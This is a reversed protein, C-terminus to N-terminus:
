PIFCLSILLECGNENGFTVFPETNTDDPRSEGGCLTFIRNLCSVVNEPSDRNSNLILLVRSCSLNTVHVADLIPVTDIAHLPTPFPLLAIPSAINIDILSESILSDGRSLTAPLDNKFGVDLEKEAMVFYADQRYAIVVQSESATIWHDDLDDRNIWRPDTTQSGTLSIPLNYFLLTDPRYGGDLLLRSVTRVSKNLTSIITSDREITMFSKNKLHTNILAAVEKFQQWNREV